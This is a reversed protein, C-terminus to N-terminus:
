ELFIKGARRRAHRDGPLNVKAIRSHVDLLGRVEEVAEFGIERLGRAHLWCLITRRQLAVASARLAKVELTPGSTADCPVLAALLAEEETLISAARWLSVRLNRGFQKELWPVIEHRLRNRRAGVDKNMVDERFKLRHEKAYHDIETRWVGLLPRVIELSGIKSSPRMAGLGRGGAGRFLNLLFTEVQDDAHHALFITLCRRRRGVQAFFALRADRGATEISRKERAALAAVDAAGLEFPLRYKQALREVFRADAKGARGRLGHEFHCVVLRRYGRELLCHLLVVSDRGGSVGVVSRRTPPFDRRLDSPFSM